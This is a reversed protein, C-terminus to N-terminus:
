RCRLQHVAPSLPLSAQVPLPLGPCSGLLAPLAPHLLLAWCSLSAGARLSPVWRRPRTKWVLLQQQSSPCAFQLNGSAAPTPLPPPCSTICRWAAACRPSSPSRCAARCQGDFFSRSSSEKGTCTTDCLEHDSTSVHM